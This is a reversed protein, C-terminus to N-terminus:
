RKFMEFNFSSGIGTRILSYYDDLTKKPTGVVKAAEALTYLRKGTGDDTEYLKRWLKM